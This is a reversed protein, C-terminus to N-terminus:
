PIFMDHDGKGFYLCSQRQFTPQLTKQKKEQHKIGPEDCIKTVKHTKPNEDSLNRSKRYSTNQKCPLIPLVFHFIFLSNRLIKAVEDGLVVLFLTVLIPHFAWIVAFFLYRNKTTEKSNFLHIKSCLVKTSRLTFDRFFIKLRGM